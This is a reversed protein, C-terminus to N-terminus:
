DGPMLWYDEHDGEVTWGFLNGDLTQIKWWVVENNCVPGDIIEVFEGPDIEGVVQGTNWNPKERVRNPLPPEYSVYAEDGIHLRSLPANECPQWTGAVIETELNQSSEEQLTKYIEYFIQYPGIMTEEEFLIIRLWVWQVELSSREIGPLYIPRTQAIRLAGDGTEGPYLREFGSSISINSQLIQGTSDFGFVSIREEWWSYDKPWDYGGINEVSVDILFEFTERHEDYSYDIQGFHFTYKVEDPIQLVVEEPLAPMTPDWYESSFDFTEADSISWSYTEGCLTAQVLSPQQNNPIETTTWLRKSIGSPLFRESEPYSLIALSGAPREYGGTDLLLIEADRACSPLYLWNASRAAFEILVQQWGERPTSYYKGVSDYYDRLQQQTHTLIRSLILQVSSEVVQSPTDTAEPLAMTPFLTPLEGPDTTAITRITTATAEPPSVEEPEDTPFSFLVEDSRNASDSQDALATCSSILLTFAGLWMFFRKM